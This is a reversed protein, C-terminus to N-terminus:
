VPFTRFNAAPLVGTRQLNKSPAVRLTVSQGFQRPCLYYCDDTEPCYICLVDIEAKDSPKM